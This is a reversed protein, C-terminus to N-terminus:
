NIWFHWIYRHIIYAYLRYVICCWASQTNQVREMIERMGYRRPGAIGADNTVRANSFLQGLAMCLVWPVRSAWSGRRIILWANEASHILAVVLKQLGGGRERERERERERQKVSPRSVNIFLLTPLSGAFDCVRYQIVSSRSPKSVPSFISIRSLWAPSTSEKSIGSLGM